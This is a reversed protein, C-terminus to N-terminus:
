TNDVEIMNEQEANIMPFLLSDQELADVLIEALEIPDINGDRDIGIVAALESPLIPQGQMLPLNTPQAM